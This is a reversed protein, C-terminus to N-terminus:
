GDGLAVLASCVPAEAQAHGDADAKDVLTDRSPWRKHVRGLLPIPEVTVGQWGSKYLLYTNNIRFPHSAGIDVYFGDTKGGFWDGIFM